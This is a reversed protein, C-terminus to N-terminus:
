KAKRTAKREPSSELADLRDLFTSVGVVAEPGQKPTLNDFLFDVVEPHHNELVARIVAYNPEDWADIEVCRSGTRLATQYATTCSAGFLQHALLYTNHSSSIFYEPLPRSRDTVAAPVEIHPRGLLAKLADTSPRAGDGSELDAEAETLVGRDVLFTRLAHSVRLEHKTIESTRGGHGGGAVTASDIEEGKDDEDTERRKERKSSFPNLGSLRSALDAM